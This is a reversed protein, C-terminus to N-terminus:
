RFLVSPTIAIASALSNAISFNFNFLFSGNISTASAGSFGPFIPASKRVASAAFRSATIIALGLVSIYLGFIILLLTPPMNVFLIAVPLVCSIIAYKFAFLIAM